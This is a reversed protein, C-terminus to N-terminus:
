RRAHIHSCIAEKGPRNTTMHPMAEGIETVLSNFQEKFSELVGSGADARQKRGREPLRASRACNKLERLKDPGIGSIHMYGHECIQEGFM